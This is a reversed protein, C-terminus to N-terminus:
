LKDGPIITTLFVYNNNEKYRPDSKVIAMFEKHGSVSRGVLCGASAGDVREMDYGWHQNVGFDAGKVVPDGTRFGDKNRDRYGAIEGVQVLAEHDKHIGVSWARYQGFAIRFAGGPNLPNVTYKYGPETTAIWSHSIKPVTSDIELIIRLDNWENLKDLNPIGNANCGEVYVINLYDEDIWYGQSLMYKAIKAAFDNKSLDLKPQPLASIKFLEETLPKKTIRSLEAIAQKTRPGVKGDASGSLLKLRILSRQVAIALEKNGSIEGITLVM